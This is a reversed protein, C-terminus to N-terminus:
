SRSIWVTWTPEARELMRAHLKAQEERAFREYEEAAEGPRQVIITMDPSGQSPSGEAKMGPPDRLHPFRM